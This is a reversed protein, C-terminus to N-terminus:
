GLSSFLVRLRIESVPGGAAGPLPSRRRWAGFRVEVWPIESSSGPGDTVKEPGTGPGPCGWGAGLGGSRRLSAAKGQTSAEQARGAASAEGRLLIEFGRASGWVSWSGVSARRPDSLAGPVSASCGGSKARSAPASPGELADGEPASAMRSSSFPSFIFAFFLRSAESVQGGAGGRYLMGGRGRAGSLRAAASRRPARRVGEGARPTQRPDGPPSVRSAPAAGPFWGEALVERGGKGLGVGQVGVCFLGSSRELLRPGCRSLGLVRPISGEEGAESLSHVGGEYAKEGADADPAAARVNTCDRGPVRSRRRERASTEASRHAPWQAAPRGSGDRREPLTLWAWGRLLGARTSRPWGFTVGRAM